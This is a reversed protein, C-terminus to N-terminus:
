VFTKRRIARGSLGFGEPGDPSGGSGHEDSEVFGVTYEGLERGLRSRTPLREPRESQWLPNVGNAAEVGITFPEKQEGVFWAQDLPDEVRPLLESLFIPNLDFPNGIHGGQLLQRGAHVQSVVPRKGGPSRKQLAIRSERGPIWRDTKSLRNRVAPDAQADLFSFVALHPPHRRRRSVRCEPQDPHCDTRETQIFEVEGGTGPLLERYGFPLPEKSRAPLFFLGSRSEDNPGYVQCCGVRAPGLTRSGNAARPKVATNPFPVPPVGPM